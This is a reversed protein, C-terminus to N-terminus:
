GPREDHHLRDALRRFPELYIAGLSHFLRTEEGLGFRTVAPGDAALHTGCLRDWIALATGFNRDFHAPDESHHIHHMAPSVLWREWLPGFSLWFPSHRLVGGLSNAAVRLVNAGAVTWVTLHDGFLAIFAGTVVAASLGTALTTLLSDIPHHRHLTVFNLVEASHHVKHFEWLWPIRHQWYHTIWRMFDDAVFLAITLALGAATAAADHAEGRVGVATLASTVAEAVPRWNVALFSLLTVQLVPNIVAIMYDNRASVGLWTERDLLRELFPRGSVDNRCLLWALTLSVLLYPWFLKGAADSIIDRVPDTLGLLVRAPLEGLLELM